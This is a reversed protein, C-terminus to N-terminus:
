KKKFLYGKGIKKQSFYLSVFNLVENRQDAAEELHDPHNNNIEHKTIPYGSTWFEGCDLLGKHINKIAVLPNRLHELVEGAIILSYNNIQPYLNHEDIPYLKCTLNRKRFRWQCFDLTSDSIDCLSVSYDHLAFALGYDAVGCGYDLVKTDSRFDLPVSSNLHNILHIAHDFRTYRLLLSMTAIKKRMRYANFLKKETSVDSFLHHYNSGNLISEIENGDLNYYEAIERKRDEFIHLHKQLKSLRNLNKIQKDYVMTNFKRFLKRFVPISM